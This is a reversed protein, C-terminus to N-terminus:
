GLQWWPSMRSSIGERLREGRCYEQLKRGSLEINQRSSSQRSWRSWFLRFIARNRKAQRMLKSRNEDTKSWVFALPTLAPRIEALGAVISEFSSEELIKSYRRQCAVEAACIDSAWGAHDRVWFSPDTERLKHLKPLLNEDGQFAMLTVALVRERALSSELWEEVFKAIAIANKKSRAATVQWMITEDNLAEFLLRRRAKLIVDSHDLEPEWMVGERHLVKGGISTIRIPSAALLSDNSLNEPNLRLLSTAITEILYAMEFRTKFGANMSRALFEEAWQSFEKPAIRSWRELPGAANFNVFERYLSTRREKMHAHLNDNSRDLDENTPSPRTTNRDVGWAPSQISLWSDHGPPLKEIHIGELRGEGGVRMEINTQPPSIPTGSIATLAAASFDSGWNRLEDHNGSRLLIWGAATLSASEKLNEWTFIPWKGDSFALSWRWANFGTQFETFSPHRLTRELITADKCRSLILFLPFHLNKHDHYRDALDLAWQCLELHPEAVVYALIQVWHCVKTKRGESQALALERLAAEAESRAVSEFNSPALEAFAVPLSNIGIVPGSSRPFTLESIKRLWTLLNKDDAHFLMLETVQEVAIEANEQNLLLQSHTNAATTLKGGQDSGLMLENLKYLCQWSRPTGIIYQWLVHVAHHMTEPSYRALFPLLDEFCREEHSGSLTTRDVSSLLTETIELIQAIEKPSLEPFDRRIALRGVLDLGLFNRKPADLDGLSDRFDAFLWSDDKPNRKGVIDEANGLEAPIEAMRWLLSFGHIDKWDNSGHPTSMALQSLAVLGSEGYHWRALLGLPEIPSKIPLRVPVTETGQEAFCYDDSRYCDMLAPLLSMEPRFSIIGIATYSLRMQEPTEAAIFQAPPIHDENKSGSADGPFVLRLWRELRRSLLATNSGRDRWHAAVPFILTTEFDGPLHRRFLAEVAHLYTELDSNVFFKLAETTVNANHHVVWLRLLAARASSATPGNSFFTLLTAVHMARAKNENSAAPELLQQLQECVSDANKGSNREAVRQLVLAWGLVLHEASLMTETLGASLVIRQERLDANVKQFDPLLQRLEPTGISTTEETPWGVHQALHALIEQPSAGLEAQVGLWQPDRRELKTELDAWLLIQRNIHTFSALKEHLQLCLRFYRPVKALDQVAETLTEPRVSPSFRAMATAFEAEDFSGVPIIRAAGWFHPGAKPQHDLPRSTFVLRVHTRLNQSHQHYNYLLKEAAAWAGRENAGDLVILVPESWRRFVKQFTRAPRNDGPPFLPRLGIRVIDEITKAQCWSLSDLWLAVPAKGPLYIAFNAAIWTKGSGEEGELVAIGQRPDNWWDILAKHRSPRPIGDSLDIRNHTQLSLNGDNFRTQLAAGARVNAFIRSPLGSLESQFHGLAIQLDPSHCQTEAWEDSSEDIHPLFGRLINWHTVILAGLPSISDGLALLIIDVGTEETKKDLRLKLQNDVRTTAVIFIDTNPTERLARDIDGEVNNQDIKAIIYRKAQLAVGAQPSYVDGAPQDGTRALYFPMQVQASFLRALLGEFGQEGEPKLNQGLVLRLDDWGRIHLDSM